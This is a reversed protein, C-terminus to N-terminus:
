AAGTLAVIGDAKREIMVEEGEIQAAFWFFGATLVLGGTLVVTMTFFGIWRAFGGFMSTM